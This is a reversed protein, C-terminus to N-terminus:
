QRDPWEGCAVTRATRSDGDYRKTVDTVRVVAGAIDAEM